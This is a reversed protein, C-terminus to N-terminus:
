KSGEGTFVVAVTKFLCWLDLMISRNKVYEADLAAKEQYGINDRGLVQAYGTLGPRVAFVGYDKRLSNLKTETVCVPRYGVLSMDGKIINFLQPLEDISTRRLFAGVKTIYRHSDLFERTALEPPADMRMTRFKYIVFIKGNKGMRMQKFIVPGRSEICILLAVALMPILALVGGLIAVVLDFTRKITRYFIGGNAQVPVAIREKADTTVKSTEVTMM